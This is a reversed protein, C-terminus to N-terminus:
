TGNKNQGSPFVPDNVPSQDYGAASRANRSWINTGGVPYVDVDEVMYATGCKGHSHQKETVAKKAFHAYQRPM